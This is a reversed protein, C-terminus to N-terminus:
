PQLQGLVRLRSSQGAAVDAASVFPGSLIKGTAGDYMYSAYHNGVGSSESPIFVELGPNLPNMDTVHLADGHSRGTSYLGTGDDDVVMAGFVIEDKGDGDVDAPIMNYVGQGVYESNINNNVGIAAKFWWQQTLQGDRWNWATLENRAPFTGSPGFIGRGVVISPRRGDLYAPAFLINEGRHGYDDGWSSIAGRDPTFPVTTMATGTTGNFVTLYEPGTVIKGVSNRYDANPDDGPLIVNNGLGDKTGPMTRSVFEAIGDGDLDYVLFASYQAAARINIGLNIRWMLTGDLKYADFIMPGTFGDVGAHAENSPMWKVIIEYDGDGDLDGVSSDNASYTVTVFQGPNAVDPMQVPPPIQLPVNLYQRLPANAALSFTESAAQELGGIVPRVHYVNTLAPNFSSDVFDTTTTIPSANLKVAAGGNASRYVNFAINTPDTAFMRWGIYAQSTARRMVVLGRNLEEIQRAFTVPTAPSSPLYDLRLKPRLDPNANERSGYIFNRDQGADILVILTALGGNAKRDKLFNVLDVGQLHQPPGSNTVQEIVNAGIVSGEPSLNVVRTLDVYNGATNTYEQGLGASALNTESWNQATNGAIDALGYVDFRGDTMTAGGTKQLTFFANTIGTLDVNTLDFRLYAMYDGGVGNLDRTELTTATGANVGTRTYTDAVPLLSISSLVQRAELTEFRLRRQRSKPQRKSMTHSNHTARPPVPTDGAGIHPVVDSCLEVPSM